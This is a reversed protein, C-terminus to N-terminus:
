PGAGVIARACWGLLLATLLASAGLMPVDARAGRPTGGGRRSTLAALVLLRSQAVAFAAVALALVAIRLPEPLM